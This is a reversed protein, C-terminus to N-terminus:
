AKHLYKSVALHSSIQGIIMGIVVFALFVLILKNSELINVIQDVNIGYGALRPSLWMFGFYCVTASILGALVGCLEAEIIFPGRIFSKDAGVLKMMYIEERRSFIAMRITSFIILVSIVLFVVALIIGGTRAIRAWSTITAIEVQNVDYTPQMEDDLYKQFTEDNEVIYKISDLNDVNYVKIRMTAQMKSIMLAKMEDDLVNIIEDSGANEAVFKEYEEASDSTVVSKTNSDASITESMEDLIERTTNPKFYITIDIKDRMMEATNTLIVSAVVTAFLIILTVSMVATAASSLWINRAFGSTGYKIIRGQERLPHHKRTKRMTKLGTKAAKKLEKVKPVGIKSSKEKKPTDEAPASQVQANSPAAPTAQAVPVAQAVQAVPAVPVKPAAPTAPAKPAATAKSAKAKPQVPAIDAPNMGTSAKKKSVM